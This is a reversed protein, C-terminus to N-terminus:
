IEGASWGSCLWALGARGAIAWLAPYFRCFSSNELPEFLLNRATEFEPWPSGALVSLLLALTNLVPFTLWIVLHWKKGIRRIDFVRQWYDRWQKKDHTRSILIIEAIACGFLGLAGLIIAPFTFVNWGLLIVWMWFFWSIGLALVFFKWPNAKSIRASM